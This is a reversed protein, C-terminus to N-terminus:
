IPSGSVTSLDVVGHIEMNTQATITYEGPHINVELNSVLGPLLARRHNIAQIGRANVSSYKRELENCCKLVPVVYTVPLLAFLVFSIQMSSYYHFSPTCSKIIISVPYILIPSQFHKYARVRLLPQM